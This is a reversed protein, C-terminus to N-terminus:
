NLKALAEDYNALAVRTKKKKKKKPTSRAPLLQLAHFFFQIVGVYRILSQRIALNTTVFSCWFHCVSCHSHARFISVNRPEAILM